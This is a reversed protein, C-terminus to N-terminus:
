TRAEQIEHLTRTPGIGTHIARALAEPGMWALADLASMHSEFRGKHQTYSVPTFTQFRLSVGEETFPNSEALYASSGVPSLYRKVELRKCLSLLRDAKDEAPIGMESSRHFRPAIGLLRALARIFTINVMALGEPIQMLAECLLSEALPWHPAHSLCGAARKVTDEARVTDSLRADRILPRSPKGAMPLSLTVIGNPGAIRNRRQWSRKCFQVDDLFVFEDVEAMLGFYGTWPLFTPQMIAASRTM